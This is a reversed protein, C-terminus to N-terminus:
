FFKRLNLRHGHQCITSMNFLEFLIIIKAQDQRKVHKVHNLVIYGSIVADTPM